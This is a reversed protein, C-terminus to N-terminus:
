QQTTRAPATQTKLRRKNSPPSELHRTALPNEGCLTPHLQRPRRAPMSLIEITPHPRVKLASPSSSEDKTTAMASLLQLRPMPRRRLETSVANKDQEC